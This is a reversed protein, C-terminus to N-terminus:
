PREPAVIRGLFLIAGSEKDRLMFLFPHDARFVPLPGIRAGTTQIEVATVAAAETGKEDIRVFTKHIVQSIFLDEPAIGRFNARQPDFAIGMGMDALAPKLDYGLEAKLKPLYLQVERPAAADLEALWGRLRPEDLERELAALGDRKRPLLVTMSLREDKYPLDISQFSANETYRFRRQLQMLPVQRTQGGPGHFPQEVTNSPNFPQAWDGLFYVANTVVLRTLEDLSNPKIVDRIRGRTEESAWDNIRKAAAAPARGFDLAEVKADYQRRATAEFEPRLQYGQKVWLANAISVTTGEGTRELRKLIGGLQPHLAEGGGAPFRLASAIALRTEGQAGAVVPGFAGAISIPSIFVNGPEAALRKYLELGMAANGRAVSAPTAPEGAVSASAAPPPAVPVPAACSAFLIAFAPAIRKM